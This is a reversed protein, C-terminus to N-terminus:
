NVHSGSSSGRLASEARDVAAQHERLRHEQEEHERLNERVMFRVGLVGVIAFALVLLTVALTTSM